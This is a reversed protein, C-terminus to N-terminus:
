KRRRTHLLEGAEIPRVDHADLTLLAVTTGSGDVFEVEFAAGQKYIHVVSGVDGAHLGDAIRDHNLVVISNETIM